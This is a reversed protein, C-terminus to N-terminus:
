ALTPHVIDTKHINSTKAAVLFYLAPPLLGICPRPLIPDFGELSHASFGSRRLCELLDKKTFDHVSVSLYPFLDLGVLVGASRLIKQAQRILSHSNPVSLVLKGGPRLVRNFEYLAHDVAGVYEIVSSCLVGQFTAEPVDISTVSVVKAFDFGNSLPGVERMAADIMQQSGDVALGKAGLGSMELTLIGAGCGADLWKEGPLVVRSLLRRVFALRKKFGRRKYNSNWTDALGEHFTTGNAAESHATHATPRGARAEALKVVVHLEYALLLLCFLLGPRGDLFGLKIVYLYIFRAIPRLPTRTGLAKLTRHRQVPDSSLLGSLGTPQSALAEMVEIENSSYENHRAIWDKTGKSFGHHDYPETIYGASGSMVERQGHGERRYRVHGARLLRLQWTPYMTCRKIWRGLFFNRYCLFFGVHGGSNAVTGASRRPSPRRAGSTPM